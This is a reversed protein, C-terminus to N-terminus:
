GWLRHWLRHDDEAERREQITSLRLDRADRGSGAVGKLPTRDTHERGRSASSTSQFSSCTSAPCLSRLYGPPVKGLPRDLPPD